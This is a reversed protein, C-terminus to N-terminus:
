IAGSKKSYIDVTGKNIYVTSTQQSTDPSHYFVYQNESTSTDNMAVIKGSNEILNVRRYGNTDTTGLLFVSKEGGIEVKGKNNFYLTPTKSAATTTPSTYVTSNILLDRYGQLRTKEDADIYGATQFDDLTATVHGQQELNIVTSEDGSVSVKVDSGFYSYPTNLLTLFFKNTNNYTGDALKYQGAPVTGPAAIAGAGVTPSAPTM